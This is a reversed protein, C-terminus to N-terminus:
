RLETRLQTLSTARRRQALIEASAADGGRVFAPVDLRLHRAAQEAFVPGPLARLVPIPM